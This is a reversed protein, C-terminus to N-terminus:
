VTASWELNINLINKFLDIFRLERVIVDNRAYFRRLDSYTDFEGFEIKVMRLVRNVARMLTKQDTFVSPNPFYMQFLERFRLKMAVCCCNLRSNVHGAAPVINNYFSQDKLLPFLPSGQNVIHERTYGNYPNTHRSPSRVLEVGTYWCRDRSKSKSM